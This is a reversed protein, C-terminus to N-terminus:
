SRMSNQNIGHNFVSLDGANNNAPMNPMDSNVDVSM